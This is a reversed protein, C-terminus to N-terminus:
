PACAPNAAGPTGIYPDETTCDFYCASAPTDCWTGGSGLMWSVGDDLDAYTVSDITEDRSALAVTDSNKFARGEYEVCSPIGHTGAATRDACLVTRAGPAIPSCTPDALGIEDDRTGDLLLSVCNLYRTAAALSEIELWELSTQESGPTNGFVETIRLEGPAPPQAELWEEDDEDFCYCATCSYNPQGPTGRMGPEDGYAVFADCWASPVDNDAVPDDELRDADLQRAVGDKSSGWDPVDDLLTGGPLYLGLSGSNGTLALKPVLIDVRPLGGNLEPDASAGFVIWAGAPVRLCGHDPALVATDKDDAKKRVRVCALDRGGSASPLLHAEFWEREPFDSEGGLVDAMVETLVLEGPVPSQAEVITGTPDACFCAGCPPNAAGPTGFLTWPAAWSTEYPKEATCLTEGGDADELWQVAHNEVVETKTYTVSHLLEGTASWVALNAPDSGANGLSVKDSVQHVRVGGLRPCGDGDEIPVGGPADAGTGPGGADTSGADPAGSADSPASPGADAEDTAGDDPPEPPPPGAIAFEGAVLYHQGGEFLVCGTARSLLLGSKPETANTTFRVGTLDFWGAGEISFEFWEAGGDTGAPNPFVETIRITDEDPAQPVVGDPPEPCLCPPPNQANRSPTAPQWRGAEDNGLHHPAAESRYAWSRGEPFEFDLVGCPEGFCVRDIESGDDCTLRIRLGDGPMAALLNTTKTCAADDCVSYAWLDGPVRETADALAGYAGAALIVPQDGDITHRKQTKGNEGYEFVVRLGRLDLERGSANYIEFWEKGADGGEPDAFVETIVLDGEALPCAAPRGTSGEGCAALVAALATALAFALVVRGFVSDSRRIRVTEPM